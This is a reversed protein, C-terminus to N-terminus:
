APAALGDRTPATRREGGGAGGPRPSLGPSPAPRGSRPGSRASPPSSRAPLVGCRREPRGRRRGTAAMAAGAGWKRHLVHLTGCFVGPWLALSLWLPVAIGQFIGTLFWLHPVEMLLAASIGGYFARRATKAGVMACLVGASVAVLWVSGPHGWWLALDYCGAHILMLVLLPVRVPSFNM